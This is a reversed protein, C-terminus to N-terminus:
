QLGHLAMGAFSSWRSFDAELAPLMAELQQPRGAFSISDGKFSGAHSYRYSVAGSITAPQDLLMLIHYQALAVHLLEGREARFYSRREEDAIPMSELAISIEKRQQEGWRLFPQAFRKVEDTDTRYDMVTIGNVADALQDLLASGGHGAEGWWFPLAVNLALQPVAAHIAAVTEVYRAQWTDPALQYGPLLYPEIDLQLGDLRTAETAQANYDAYAAAMSIFHQRGEALVAAPDGLVAWVHLKHAHAQTVFAALEDAHKVRGEEVPVTIYIRTLKYAAASDFIKQPTELWLAPSWFWAARSHSAAAVASRPPESYAASAAREPQPLIIESVAFREQQLSGQLTISRTDPALPPVLAAWVVGAANGPLPLLQQSCGAATMQTDTVQLLTLKGDPQLVHSRYGSPTSKLAAAPQDACVSVWAAQAQGCALLLIATTMANALKSIM